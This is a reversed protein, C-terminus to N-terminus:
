YNSDVYHFVRTSIEKVIKGIAKIVGLIMSGRQSEDGLM